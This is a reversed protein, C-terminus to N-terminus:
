KIYKMIRAEYMCVYTHIYINKWDHESGQV